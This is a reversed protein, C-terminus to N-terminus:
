VKTVKWPSKLFDDPETLCAVKKFPLPIHFSNLVDGVVLQAVESCIYGKKSKFWMKWTKNFLRGMGHQFFLNLDTLYGYPAPTYKEAAVAFITNALSVQIKPLRAIGYLVLGDAPKITRNHLEKDSLTKIKIGDTLAEIIIHGNFNAGLYLAVHIIESGQVLRIGNSILNSFKLGPSTYLLVDGPNFLM